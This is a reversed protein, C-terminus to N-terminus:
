SGIIYVGDRNLTETPECRAPAPYDIVGTRCVLDVQRFVNGDVIPDGETIAAIQLIIGELNDTNPVM